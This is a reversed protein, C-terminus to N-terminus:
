SAPSAALQAPDDLPQEVPATAALTSWGYAVLGTAVPIWCSILRYIAVATLAQDAGAGALVLSGTLGAEVFGLGGPTIPILGAANVAMFAFLVVAPGPRMGVALLTAYLAFYDGVAFGTAAIAAYTKRSRLVDRIEDREHVIRAALDPPTHVWSIRRLTSETHRALQRMPRDGRLAIVFVPLCVALTVLVFPVANSPVIDNDGIPVLALVPFVAVGALTTLLGAFALSIISRTADIGHRSLMRIQLVVGVASGAPLLNSAANGALQPVAVDRWRKTRLVLRQLAWGSVFAGVECAFAVFVWSQKAQSVSGLATYVHGLVPALLAISALGALVGLTVHLGHHSRSTGGTSAPEPDTRGFAEDDVLLAVDQSEDVVSTV